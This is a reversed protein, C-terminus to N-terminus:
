FALKVLLIVVIVVAAFLAFSIAAIALGSAALGVPVKAESGDDLFAREIDREVRRQIREGLLEGSTKPTETKLPPFSSAEGDVSLEYIREHQIDKLQAEGHDHM